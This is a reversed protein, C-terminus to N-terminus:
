LVSPHGRARVHSQVDCKIDTQVFPKSYGLTRRNIPQLSVQNYFYPGGILRLFNTPIKQRKSCCHYQTQVDSSDRVSNYTSWLSDCVSYCM